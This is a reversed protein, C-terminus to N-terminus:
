FLNILFYEGNEVRKTSLKLQFLYKVFSFLHSVYFSIFGPVTLGGGCLMIEVIFEFYYIQTLNM